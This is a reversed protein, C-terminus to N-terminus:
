NNFIFSSHTPSIFLFYLSGPAFHALDKKL